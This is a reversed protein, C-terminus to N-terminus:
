TVGGRAEIAFAIQQARVGKASLLYYTKGSKHSGRLLGMRWLATASRPNIDPFARRKQNPEFLGLAARQPRTLSELVKILAVEEFAAESAPSLHGSKETGKM